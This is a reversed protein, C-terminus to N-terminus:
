WLYVFVHKFLMWGKDYIYQLDGNTFNNFVRKDGLNLEYADLNVIYTYNYM